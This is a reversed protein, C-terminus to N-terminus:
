KTVRSAVGGMEFQGNMFSFNTNVKDPGQDPTLRLTVPATNGMMDVTYRILLSKGDVLIERATSEGIMEDKIVAVVKEGDAKVTFALQIPGPPAQVTVVWDGLFARAQEVTAPVAAPVAAAVTGQVADAQAIAGTASCVAVAVFLWLVRHIAHM